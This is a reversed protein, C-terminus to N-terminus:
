NMFTLRLDNLQSRLSADFQRDGVRLVYGGILKSDYKEELEVTKSGTLRQVQAKLKERVAETLPVTTIVTAREIGNMTDYQAIFADAIADLINDRGKTAVIHLFSMTLPQLRTAFVAKIISWKKENRVIPNKLLVALPRNEDITRKFFQMDTHMDEVIGKEQALDILSKAYRAAVTSIAM